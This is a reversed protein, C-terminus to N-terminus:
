VPRELLVTVWLILLRVVGGARIILLSHLWQPIWSDVGVVDLVDRRQQNLVLAGILILM